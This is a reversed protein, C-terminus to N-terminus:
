TTSDNRAKKLMKKLETWYIKEEGPLAHIDPNNIGEFDPSKEEYGLLNLIQNIREDYEVLEDETLGKLVRVLKKTASDKLKDELNQLNNDKSDVNTRKKNTRIEKNSIVEIIKEIEKRIEEITM